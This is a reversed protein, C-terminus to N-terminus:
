DAGELQQELFGAIQRYATIRNGLKRVSRGEDAFRLYRVEVEQERLGRVLRDSETVPDRPDNAGHVVVMPTRAQHIKGIPSIAAFFERDAPDDIDGYELRDSAKLAPSAEELARVWDSVGVFSVAARFLGPYEVVAANTLYGGYSGGMIGMRAPDAVANETLWTVADEIDRVADPRSRGNDLRAFTKGFGTSGRFNLDFVAFGRGVLYQAVLDFQPRAQATPGGHVMLMLPPRVDEALGRPQYLLGQLTVGDRAPFRHAVPVVLAAPEIGAMTPEIVRVATTERPDWLWVEGPTRPGSIHISLRRAQRAADLRYVGAPLDPATLRRGSAREMVQLTSYGDANETWALYRSNDLLVVDEVDRPPTHLLTLAGTELEVHALAHFERDHNTSLYFGSGDSLWAFSGYYSPDDPEFLTRLSKSRVNVVHLNNADEGRTESLLLWDGGPQWDRAFLGFHGRRIEWAEGSGLDRVFVDFDTGNRETTSYAFAGGDPSFGGFVVYANGADSVRRERTGDVNILVYGEREDGDRDSAYLLQRSDPAWAFSTVAPGYTLQTPWGGTAAVVYLQPHGTLDSLYAVREGDPSMSVARPGRMLLFRVIDYPREGAIGPVPSSPAPVDEPFPWAPEPTQQAFAAIWWLSLLALGFAPL